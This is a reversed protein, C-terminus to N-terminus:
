AQIGCWRLAIYKSIFIAIAIDSKRMGIEKYFNLIFYSYFYWDQFIEGLSLIPM